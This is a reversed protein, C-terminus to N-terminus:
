AELGVHSNAMLKVINKIQGTKKKMKDLAERTRGTAQEHEVLNMRAM